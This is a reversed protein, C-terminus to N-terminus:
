TKKWWLRKHIDWDHPYGKSMKARLRLMRKTRNYDFIRIPSKQTGAETTWMPHNLARCDAPRGETRWKVYEKITLIHWYLKM